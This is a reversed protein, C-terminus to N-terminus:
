GKICVMPKLRAVKTSIGAKHMVDVVDAVDKYAGPAEEAIGKLGHGKVIIGRKALEQVIEQGRWQGMAKVRSMMRGAGHVSSGFTENMGKETGCLIHSETGMTGGILIPQGVSRYKEPIEERGPGFGRTSGKRQVLVEKATGDIKHKEVKATNHGIDYLMKVEKEAIGFFEAFATRTLHAIVQRNAFASNIGCRVAALYKKGEPSSIPACVLERDNIKLNYKRTAADLEKLYDTGIQHGLGRSGCHISVLIQGMELGFVKAIKKDFIEDVYQM